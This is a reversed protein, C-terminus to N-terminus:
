YGELEFTVSDLDKNLDDLEELLANRLEATRASNLEELVMNIERELARRTNVLFSREEMNKEGITDKLVYPFVM